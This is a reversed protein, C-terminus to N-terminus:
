APTGLFSRVHFGQDFEEPIVRASRRSFIGQDKRDHTRTDGNGSEDKTTRDTTRHVARRVADIECRGSSARSQQPPPRKCAAAALIKTIVFIANDM